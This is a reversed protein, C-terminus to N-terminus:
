GRTWPTGSPGYGGLTRRDNEDSEEPSYVEVLLKNPGRVVLDTCDFEFPAFYGEHSGLFEGNLWVRAAYYVGGFHLNLMGDAPPPAYEFGCRYLMYGQYEAFGPLLQWHGPGPVSFWDNGNEATDGGTPLAAALPAAEWGQLLQVSELPDEDLDDFKM